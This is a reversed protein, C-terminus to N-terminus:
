ASVTQVHHVHQHQLKVHQVTQAAHRANVMLQHLEKQVFNLVSMTICTPTLQVHLVHLAQQIVTIAFMVVNNANEIQELSNQHVNKWACTIM